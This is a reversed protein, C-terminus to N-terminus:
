EHCDTPVSRSGEENADGALAFAATAIPGATPVAIDFVIPMNIPRYRVNCTSANVYRTNGDTTVGWGEHVHGFVHYRPRVRQQLEDLLDACGARMDSPQCLDGHGLPPGHTLVQAAAHGPVRTHTRAGMCAGTARACVPMCVHESSVIDTGTPILRWKARCADGRPLNFAWECFEPQWPSGWIKIGDITTGSDMLYECNPIADIAARAKRCIDAASSVSNRSCDFRASTTGYTEPHLSLDHNGAILVKRKHPLSGFWKAFNEVEELRGVNTFDGCHLLVDGEPIFDFATPRKLNTKSEYSHTDSFCVFRVHGQPKDPPKEQAEFCTYVDAAHHCNIDILTDPEGQGARTVEWAATPDTTMNLARQPVPTIPKPRGGTEQMRAADHAM